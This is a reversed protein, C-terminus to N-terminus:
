SIGYVSQDDSLADKFQVNKVRLSSLNELIVYKTYLQEKEPFNGVQIEVVGLNM